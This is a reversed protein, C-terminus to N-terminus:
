LYSQTLSQTLEAEKQILAPLDSSGQGQQQSRASNIQERLRNIELRVEEQKQSRTMTQAQTATLQAVNVGGWGLNPYPGINAFNPAATPIIHPYQLMNM